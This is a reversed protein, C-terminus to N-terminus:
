EYYRRMINLGDEIGERYAQKYAKLDDQADQLNWQELRMEIIDDIVQEAFQVTSLGGTFSHVREGLPEDSMALIRLLHYLDERRKHEKQTIDGRIAGM